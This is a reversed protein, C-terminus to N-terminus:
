YQNIFEDFTQKRVLINKTGPITPIGNERILNRVSQESMNLLSAMQKTTYVISDPMPENRNGSRRRSSSFGNKECFTRLDKAM